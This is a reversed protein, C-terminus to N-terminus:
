HSLNVQFRRESNTEQEATATTLNTDRAFALGPRPDFFLIAALRCFGKKFMDPPLMGIGPNSHQPHHYNRSHTARVTISARSPLKWPSFHKKPQPAKWYALSSQLTWNRVSAFRNRIHSSCLSQLCCPRV